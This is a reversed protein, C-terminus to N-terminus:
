LTFDFYGIFMEEWSQEGWRVPNFPDPNEMNQESNDFAGTAVVTSGAAIRKPVALEYRTQWHFDYKPVSLLTERKGSPDVVEFKMRAGRVHMHPAMAYLTAGIPILFQQVVQHENAGAPIVFTDNILPLTLLERAPPTTHFWLALEPEDTEPQGTPTYHLNFTIWGPSLTLGTGEPLRSPQIGPVYAAIGSAMQSSSQGEWVIYHHVVRTNSPRVIAAKIWREQALGTQVYIYRYPEVGEATIQQLPAKIVLDPPGFEVPWKPPPAPINELPDPGSGRPAGAAIWQMLKREQDISLSTDNKFRGFEPDAHWPPMNKESVEHQILSSYAKVIAHNTMAWPAVNGPSHCTVCRSQLLPAIDASYSIEGASVLPVDCGAPKTARVTVPKGALFETLADDVYNRTATGATATTREDFAGRYFIEYGDRAVCVVEAARSAEYLLAVTQARDHLIPMNLGLRTAEAAMNTRTDAPNSNIMWFKVGQPEFKQKLARITAAQNTLESCGNAAFILVFAQVSDDNWFYHLEHAKGTHDILRFNEAHPSEVETSSAQRIRYFRNAAGNPWPDLWKLANTQLLLSSIVEWEPAALDNAAEIHVVNNSEGTITLEASGGPLPRVTAGQASSIACAIIMLALLPIRSFMAELIM